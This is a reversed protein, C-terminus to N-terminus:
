KGIAWRFGFSLAVGNRGGNRLMTQFFGTFREGWRKQVGVGYQFYPKVSMDPLAVNNAMFDTKDMINWVMQAGIYPQWGNKLNGILKLGPTINIAHLPDSKIRVGAANTYDFTNVFSYSMLYSPQIIFKGRALEWNYGTKSAVGSMLMPFDESGYMTSAEAAGAGINATLATFFNNKHWLISAGLTGGNQYISNGIYNQHSGNYGVYASYQYDWGNKTEYVKSDGGFFSGYSINEVKPGNNLGVKEFSAYPRFWIGADKEPLYTTSFVKPTDVSAYRNAMNYAQREEMTMLMKMDLNRFAEDYSNLQTLYGGFQAAVPAVTVAPNYSAYNRAAGRAVLLGGQTNDQKYGFNYKYIPTMIDTKDTIKIAQLLNQNKYEKSIFPIYFEKNTTNKDFNMLNIKSIQLSAGSDVALNNENEFTIKDSTLSKTDIDVELSNTGTLKMASIKKSNISSDALKFVANDFNLSNKVDTINNALSLSAGPKINIDGTGIIKNDLTTILTDNNLNIAGDNNLSNVNIEGGNYNLISNEKNNFKLTNYTNNKGTINGKVDVGKTADFNLNTYYLKDPNKINAARWKKGDKIQVKVKDLTKISNWESIIDGIIEAGNKININDVYANDSIYIAAKSGELKGEVNFDSVLAGQNIPDPASIIPTIYNIYSGKVNSDATGFVNSGFDFSAAIGDEGKATVETNPRINVVHGNGWTVGIGINEKGNAHINGSELTYTNQAGDIRVGFSGDGMTEINNGIQTINNNNGYIHIGVAHDVLSPNSTYTNNIENWESFGRDYVTSMGNLYYSKGFYKRLQINYGIDNMLALEAEMPTLWNRYDQHSMYSNRLELHSLEFSCNDKFEDDSPHIPLGYVTKYNDDEPDDENYYADSYNILGGNDIINQKAENYNDSGGLVKITNNGSFYPSYKIVNFDGIKNGLRQGKHPALEKEPEFYNPNGTYIRLQADYISLPDTSSKSFYYSKDSSKDNDIKFYQEAGTAVGLSHMLEHNMVVYLDPLERHYLAHKGTYPEWGPYEDSVGLGVLVYGDKTNKNIEPQPLPITYNHLIANIKTVKYPLGNVTVYASGAGANYDNMSSYSYTAPKIPSTTLGIKEEWNKGSELIPYIYKQPITFASVIDDGDVRVVDGKKYVNIRFTTNGTEPINYVDYANVCLSFASLLVIVILGKKM